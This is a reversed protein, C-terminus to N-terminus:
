KADVWTRMYNQPKFGILARAKEISVLSETGILPRKLATDPYFLAALIASPVGMSNQDECVYLPHSGEYDATVSNEFAQAADEGSIAAWFDTYGMGLSMVTDRAPPGGSSRASRQEWPLESLREAREHDKRAIVQQVLAAQEASPMHVLDHYAQTAGAMFKKLMEQFGSMGTYVFPLRLQTGSIGDRRWHYAAIDEVTQKSFSYADTTFGPHAEDMPLYRIPFPKVGFNFGLANISSACVVRRIGEQAAAEYVNFTGAVNIRYIEHGPGAAPHTLAALHVIADMDRVHERITAFDTLDGSVCEAGEMGASPEDKRDTVRVVHGNNLLRQVLPRGVGGLGGTVLIKM